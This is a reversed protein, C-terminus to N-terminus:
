WEFDKYNQLAEEGPEGCMLLYSSFYIYNM